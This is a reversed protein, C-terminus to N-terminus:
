YRSIVINKLRELFSRNEGEAKTKSGLDDFGVLPFFFFFFVKMYSQQRSKTGPDRM